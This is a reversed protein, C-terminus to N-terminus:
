RRVIKLDLTKREGEALTFLTALGQQAELFAPDLHDMGQVSPLAIALYTEPPLGAVRFQGTQNQM